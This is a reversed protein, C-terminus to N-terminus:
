ASSLSFGALDNFGSMEAGCQLDLEELLMNTCWVGFIMTTDGAFRQNNKSFKVAVRDGIVPPVFLEMHVNSVKDADEDKHKRDAATKKRKERVALDGVEVALRGRATREETDSEEV